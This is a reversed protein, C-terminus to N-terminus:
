GIPNLATTPEMNLSEILLQQVYLPLNSEVYIAGVVTIEIVYEPSKKADDGFVV